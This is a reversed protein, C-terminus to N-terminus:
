IKVDIAKLSPDGLLDQLILGGRSSKFKPFHAEGISRGTAIIRFFNYSDVVNMIVTPGTPSKLLSESLSDKEGDYFSNVGCSSTTYVPIIYNFNSVESWDFAENRAHAGHMVGAIIADSKFILDRAKEYDAPDSFDLNYNTYYVGTKKLANEISFPISTLCFSSFEFKKDPDLTNISQNSCPDKLEWFVKNVISIVKSVPKMAMSKKVITTIENPNRVSFRGVIMEFDYYNKNEDISPHKESDLPYPDKDAYYLDSFQIWKGSLFVGTPVNWKKDLDYMETPEYWGDVYDLPIDVQTDGVLLTYEVKKSGDGYQRYIAMKIKEAVNNGRYATVIYDVTLVGVDYGLTQKWAIFDKLSDIFLPRTIILYTINKNNCELNYCPIASNKLFSANPKVNVSVPKLNFIFGKSYTSSFFLSFGAVFLVLCLILLTKNKSM